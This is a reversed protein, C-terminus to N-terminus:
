LVTFKLTRLVGDVWLNILYVGPALNAPINLVNNEGPNLVQRTQQLLKGQLDYLKIDAKSPSHLM